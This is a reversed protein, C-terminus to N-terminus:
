EFAPSLPHHVARFPNPKETQTMAHRATLTTNSEEVGERRMRMTSYQNTSHQTSDIPSHQYVVLHQLVYRLDVRLMNNVV